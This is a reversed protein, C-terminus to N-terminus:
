LGTIQATYTDKSYPVPSVPQLDMNYGCDRLGFYLHAYLSYKDISLSVRVFRSGLLICYFSLNIWILFSLFSGLVAYLPNSLLLKVMFASFLKNLFFLLLSAFLSGHLLHVLGLREPLFLRYLLILSLLLYLWNLLTTIYIYFSSLYLRSISMLFLLSPTLVTYFLLLLPVALWFVLEKRETLSGYAYSLAKSLVKAFSVSFFYSLAVSLIYGATRHKYIDLIKATLKDGYPIALTSLYNLLDRENVFPLYSALFGVLMIFSSFVMLFSYTLSASHYSFGLRLSDYFAFFCARIVSRLRM